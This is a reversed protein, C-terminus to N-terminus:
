MGKIQKLKPQVSKIWDAIDELQSQITQDGPMDKYFNPIVPASDLDEWKDIAVSLQQSTRVFEAMLSDLTGAATRIDPALSENLARTKAVREVQKRFKNM